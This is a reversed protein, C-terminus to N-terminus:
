LNLFAPVVLIVLVIVLMIGMPILLRTGAEEGMQKALAIREEQAQEMEQDLIEEMGETGKKMHQVLIRGLKMYRSQGCRQGFHEYAKEESIGNKMEQCCYVMEEYVYRIEKKEREEYEQAIRFFTNRITMGAALLIRIKFILSAYDLKLQNQRKRALKEVKQDQYAWLFIGMLIGSMCILFSISVNTRKWVLTRGDLEKPLNLYEEEKQREDQKKAKNEIERKIKEEETINKPFVRAFASYMGKEEQCQVVAEIRVIEGEQQTEKLIEGTESLVGYPTVSWAISVMEEETRKPMVLNDRVEDLTENEGLIITDLQELVREVKEKAEEASYQRPQIQIPIQYVTEEGEMCVNLEETKKNEGYSPRMLFSLAEEEKQFFVLFIVSLSVTFFGAMVTLMMKKAEYEEWSIRQTTWLSELYQRKKNKGGDKRRKILFFTIKYFPIKWKQCNCKIETKRSLFFLIGYATLLVVSIEM